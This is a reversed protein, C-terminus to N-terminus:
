GGRSGEATKARACRAVFMNSDKNINLCNAGHKTDIAEANNGKKHWGSQPSSRAYWVCGQRTQSARRSARYQAESPM